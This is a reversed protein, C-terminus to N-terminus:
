QFDSWWISPVVASQYYDLMRTIKFQLKIFYQLKATFYIKYAFITRFNSAHIKTFFRSARISCDIKCIM